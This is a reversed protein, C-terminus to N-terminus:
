LQKRIHRRELRLYVLLRQASNNLSRGLDDIMLVRSSYFRKLHYQKSDFTETRLIKVIDIASYYGADQINHIERTKYVGKLALCALIYLGMRTKGNGYQTSFLSINWYKSNCYRQVLEKYNYPKGGQSIDAKDFDSMKVGKYADPLVNLVRYFVNKSVEAQAKERHSYECDNSCLSPKLYGLDANLANKIPEYEISGGCEICETKV